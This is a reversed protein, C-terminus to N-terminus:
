KIPPLRADTTDPGRKVMVSTRGGELPPLQQWRVPDSFDAKLQRMTERHGLQLNACVLIGGDVMLGRMATIVEPPPAFGDFFAMSYGPVLRAVVDEFSGHHVTVRKALGHRAIQQRALAVHEADGELTDVHANPSGQSLCCATYGLATGLELIRQPQHSNVLATLAPGDEFTYAGCGHQAQHLRTAQQIDSFLDIRNTM